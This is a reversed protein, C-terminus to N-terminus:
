CKVFPESCSMWLESAKSVARVAVASTDPQRLNAVRHGQSVAAALSQRVACSHSGGRDGPPLEVSISPPSQGTVLPDTGLLPGRTHRVSELM